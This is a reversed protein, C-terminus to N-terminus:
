DVGSQTAIFIASSRWGRRKAGSTSAYYHRQWFQDETRNLKRSTNQKLLQLAM